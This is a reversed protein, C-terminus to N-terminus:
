AGAKGSPMGEGSELLTPPTKVPPESALAQVMEKLRHRVMFARIAARVYQSAHYHAATYKPFPGDGGPLRRAFREMLWEEEIDPLEAGAMRGSLAHLTEIFSVMNQPHLPIDVSMIVEQTAQRNVGRAQRTGMPPDLAQVVLPLSSAAALGTAAPDVRSWAEVFQATMSKNVPLGEDAGAMIMNEVIVAVILNLMIFACLIIFVPFYIVAAAPTLACRDNLLDPPVGSLQPDGPDFYSGAALAAGTAPSTFDSTLLVCGKTIMCDHMIGNWSEGTIMRFLLLMANPFNNFNAHRNLFDGFKIGGFLNMGIVSFCFFFLLMVGGVNGLAPLSYLLTVLLRQLGKARRIIRIVRVVRLVRLVPMFSLNQTDSFDLAISAMSILVVSFDFCNWKDRFYDTPGFAALKLAAEVAFIATFIVNSISMVAQWSNSMDAHVMAMFLVNVTITGMIFNNFANSTALAYLGERWPPGDPQAPRQDMSTRLLLKQVDVWATQQPTILVSRATQAEHMEMFKDLTVGVFLNLIFFACVVIFLGFFLLMQPQHNWLPQQDVGTADVASFAIDVWLELTSLQFLTLVASGVNDFNSRLNVWSTNLGYAPLTINREATYVSANITAAGAECWQRTMTEGPPLLYYPDLREGTDADVCNYLQGKFLNVALIAFILYFLLSVLAVNGMAPIVAFLANVVVKLEEYRSATRLPRLARLTRLVRLMQLNNADLGSSELAIMTLGILVVLFDLVNWGNRVYAHKGTFAFGFTIIKLLAELTFAGVFVYDCYRIALELRSGRQLSPTDLALTVSSAVILVLVVTEFRTDHVLRAARWRLWHNSDLLLLSRGRIFRALHENRRVETIARLSAAVGKLTGQVGSAGPRSEVTVAARASASAAPDRAFAVGRGSPDRQPLERRGGDASAKTAASVRLFGAYRGARASHPRASVPRSSSEPAGDRDVPVVKRKVGKLPSFGQPQAFGTGSSAAAESQGDSWDVAAQGGSTSVGHGHPASAALDPHMHRRSVYQLPHEGPALESGADGTETVGLELNGLSYASYESGAGYYDNGYEDYEDESSSDSSRKAKAGLQDEQQKLAPDSRASTDLSDTVSGSFNDLLIAVFLNFVLYTGIVLVAVYYVAGWPTTSRMSDYMINNWNETTLLQFVTYIGWFVTDFRARPVDSKGVMGLYECGGGVAVAPVTANADAAEAAAPTACFRECYAQGNYFSGPAPIWSGYEEATCPLYCHFHEPCDGWVRLGLPCVPRAGDVYDCFMFKYGFLQMGMLASIFLFLLTLLLLYTTSTVSRFLARIIFNLEKWSRALRFIRLLRFARLVSLPGVGSVSPIVDMIFEVMSILVVIFDFINMGDRFYRVVGFAFLKLLLELFFYMTFVYNVINASNEVSAPMRFWNICMLATNLIIVVMTTYELRKGVAVRCAARRLPHMAEVEEATFIADASGLTMTPKRQLAAKSGAVAGSAQLGGHEVSALSEAESGTDSHRGPHNYALGHGQSSHRDGEKGPKGAAAALAAKGEGGGQEGAKRQEEAAREAERQVGEAAEAAKLAVEAKRKEEAAASDSMFQAYIVALALNIIYLSGFVVLVVFFPWVWWSLSDSTFYMVDTWAEQTICQFITLWAWLIHDFSTMGYNPNGYSTCYMGAPCVHGDGASGHSATPTGSVNYWTVDAAMPGGCLEGADDDSVVYSVNHLVQQGSADLGGGYANDFVPTGCRYRLAGAFVQVAILGYIFFTFACLLFVDLLMPMSGLLTTVLVRMGRVRTIARLPRLVRVTRLATLNGATFIDIYGLAVVMFDVVNWGDRLYTGPALAFGMSVIKLLAEVTFIAVWLFEFKNLTSGLTTDEFDQRNSSM